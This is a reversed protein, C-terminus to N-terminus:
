QRRCGRDAAREDDRDAFGGGTVSYHGKPALYGAVYDTNAAITM